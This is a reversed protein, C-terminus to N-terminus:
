IFVVWPRDLELLRAERMYLADQIHYGYSWLARAFGAPSADQTTKIDVLTGLMSNACDFRAECTVSDDQWVASLEADGQLLKRAAPHGLVADRVAIVQDYEQPPLVIAGPHQAQLQEWAEKVAKTRRDGEPGRVYRESFLWPQLAAVHLAQGFAEAPTPPEPYLMAHQAHAPSRDRMLLLLSHSAARWRHYTEAPIGPYLGPAPPELIPLAESM